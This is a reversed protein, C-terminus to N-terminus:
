PKSLAEGASGADNGVAPHDPDDTHPDGALAGAVTEAGAHEPGAEEEPLDTSDNRRAM